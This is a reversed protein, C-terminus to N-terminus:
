TTAAQAYALRPDVTSGGMIHRLRWAMSDTEFDGETQSVTGGGLSVKNSDRAIIEPQEHGALFNMQVAVGDSPDGFLYWSTDGHTTDIIPLFPNTHLTIPLKAVVNESTAVAAASTSSLGTAILAADSLAKLAAIYKQPPVVLHFREILIPNGDIDKQSILKGYANAIGSADLVDTGKNNYSAGDIPHTGSTSFFTANPGTSSVFLATANYAETVAAAKALRQALDSFGGLDDNIMVEWALDFRRGYKALSSTVKTGELVPNDNKYEGKQAVGALKSELGYLTLLDKPRFDNQTGAKVYTRWDATQAKYKARLSRELVTGFLTPFDSTTEAEKMLYTRKHSALGAKNSILDMFRVLKENFNAIQKARSGVGAVLKEGEEMMELFDQRAM